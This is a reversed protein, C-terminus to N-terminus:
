RLRDCDRYCNGKGNTRLYCSDMEVKCQQYARYSAERNASDISDRVRSEHERNRAYEAEACIDAVPKKPWVVQDDANKVVPTDCVTDLYVVRKGKADISGWKGNENQKIDALGNAAFNEAGEFQPPIVMQGKADIYGKKGNQKILALGNAAFNSAYEFQPPIVMQGKADIYGWKDNQEIAALGNAGFGYTIAFQLPIVMQGKADIYGKKGNQQILALGNAAFNEAVEFQPPIVMQGKADIYGMKGNQKIQALGNADFKYAIDFQPPIVMQGKADIYGIKGNQKIQALGNAAFEGADEFQPPIAFQGAATDFYGCRWKKLNFCFPMLNLTASKEPMPAAASAARGGATEAKEGCGALAAAVIMWFIAKRKM